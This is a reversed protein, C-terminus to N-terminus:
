KYGGEHAHTENLEANNTHKKCTKTTQNILLTKLIYLKHGKMKIKYCSVIDNIDGQLSARIISIIQIYAFFFIVVLVSITKTLCQIGRM